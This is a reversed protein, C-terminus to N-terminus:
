ENELSVLIRKAESKRLTLRDGNLILEIPDGSPSVGVVEVITGLTAGIEFLRRRVADTGTIQRITGKEGRTLSCLPVPPSGQDTSTGLSDDWDDATCRECDLAQQENNCHYGFGELWKTGGRPCRDVYEAFEIFRELVVESVAHELQCAAADAEEADISLVKIFFERLVKHKRLIVQAIERGTDTLTTIDYPAYNVLHRDSLTRLAATVSSRGVNLRDAIDSARAAQKEEVIQYIAKLYHEMSATLDSTKNAM